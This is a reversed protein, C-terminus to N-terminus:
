IWLWKIKKRWNKQFFKNRPSMKLNESSIWISRIAFQVHHISKRRKIRFDNKPHLSSSVNKYWGAIVAICNDLSDRTFLLLTSLCNTLFTYVGLNKLGLLCPTNVFCNIVPPPPPCNDERRFDAKDTISECILCCFVNWPVRPVCSWVEM